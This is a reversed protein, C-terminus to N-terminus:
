RPVPKELCQGAGAVADLEQATVRQKSFNALLPGTRCSLMEARAPDAWMDRLHHQQTAQALGELQQWAPLSKRLVM